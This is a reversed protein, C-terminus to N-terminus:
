QAVIIGCLFDNLDKYSKYHVRKDNANNDIFFQTTEDGKSYRLSINTRKARQNLRM